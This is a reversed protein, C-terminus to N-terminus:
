SERLTDVEEGTLFRFGGRPLGPDLTLNGMRVRELYRVPKGRQALMGIIRAASLPHEEDTYQLLLERLALIKEKQHSSRAMRDGREQGGTYGQAPATTFRFM